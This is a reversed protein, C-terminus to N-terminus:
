AEKGRYIEIINLVTYLMNIIGCIPLIIYFIGISIVLSSTLQGMALHTIKIGGYLLIVLSFLFAVAEAFVLFCRKMKGGMKDILIPINMHGREGTVICAGILTVWAFLYSVLEESWPSPDKLIYRTFVQWCTLMVMLAFTFCGLVKLFVNLINRIGDM